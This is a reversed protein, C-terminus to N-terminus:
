LQLHFSADMMENVPSGLHIVAIYLVLSFPDEGRPSFVLQIKLCLKKKWHTTRLNSCICPTVQPHLITCSFKLSPKGLYRKHRLLRLGLGETGHSRGWFFSFAGSHQWLFSALFNGADEKLIWAPDLCVIVVSSTVGHFFQFTGRTDVRHFM